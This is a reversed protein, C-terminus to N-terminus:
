PWKWEEYEGTGTVTITLEDGDEWTMENENIWTPMLMCFTMFLILLKRM